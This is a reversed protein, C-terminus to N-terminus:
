LAIQWQTAAFTSKRLVPCFHVRVFVAVLRFICLINGLLQVRNKDTAKNRDHEGKKHIWPIREGIDNITTENACYWLQGM